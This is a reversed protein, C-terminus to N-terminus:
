CGQGDDVSLAFVDSNEMDKEHVRKLYECGALIVRTTKKAHPKEMPNKPNEDCQIFNFDSDITQYRTTM